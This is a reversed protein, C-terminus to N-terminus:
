KILDSLTIGNVLGEVLEDIRDIVDKAACNDCACSACAGDECDSAALSGELARLMDGVTINGPPRALVYGGSAGRVSRVLQARRLIAVIQELYSESIGEREAISKVSAAGEGRAIDAMLRIGYRGRTTIKL